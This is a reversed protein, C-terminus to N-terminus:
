ITYNILIAILPCVLIGNIFRLIFSQLLAFAALELSGIHGLFSQTVVIMGFSSVRALIGPFAIKWIMKSETWIRRRLGANRSEELVLLKEQMSNDM